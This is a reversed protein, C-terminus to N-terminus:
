FAAVVVPRKQENVGGNLGVARVTVVQKGPKDLTIFENFGGDGQVEVRQGNVTVTAGAETRGKIQLLNSRVDISEIQLPPPPGDGQAANPRIVTFRAFDSFAGESDDQGAAAVRWYYKAPELGRLEISTGKWGKRDYLPRNFYPSYDIQFHYTSSTPVEKWAFLTTARTPDPYTIETQHSPALLKPVDPLTVKPGALGSSDVKLGQGSALESKQGTKTEVVGTGRYIKVDTDGTEAVRIGGKSEDGAITRVTPTSAEISSGPVNKRATNFQVEGSSIHWAVKRQKTSPDESTEEITILSDPRVHVVTGDFFEIEAAAGPGTRVLDSRKLIIAKDATVWEFTGVAKVKVSGEISTFHATTATPRPTEPPPSPATTHRVYYMWGGGVLLAVLLAGGIYITKYSVTFWDLLEDDVKPQRGKDPAM